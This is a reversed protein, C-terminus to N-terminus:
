TARRLRGAYDLWLTTKHEGGDRVWQHARSLPCQEYRVGKKAESHEGALASKAEKGPMEVLIREGAASLRFLYAM